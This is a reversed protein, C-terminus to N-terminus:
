SRIETEDEELKGCGCSCANFTSSTSLRELLTNKELEAYAAALEHIEQCTLPMKLKEAIANEIKDHLIRIEQM